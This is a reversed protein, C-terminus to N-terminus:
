RKYATFTLFNFMMYGVAAFIALGLSKGKLKRASLINEKPAFIFSYIGVIFFIWFGFIIPETKLAIVKDITYNIGFFTGALLGYLHNKELHLNKINLSVVAGLILIIGLIKYISTSEGLFIIGLLTSIVVSISILISSLSINKVIFSKLYFIIALASLLGDILLLPLNSKSVPAIIRNTEFLLLLLPLTLMSQILLIITSGTKENLGSKSNLLKQMTLEAAALFTISTLSIYFWPQIM